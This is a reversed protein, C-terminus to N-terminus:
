RIDQKMHSHYEPTYASEDMTLDDGACLDIFKQHCGGTQVRTPPDCKGEIMVHVDGVRTGHKAHRSPVHVSMRKNCFKAIAYPANPAAKACAKYNEGYDDDAIANLALALLLCLTVFLKM